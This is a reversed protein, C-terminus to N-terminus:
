NKKACIRRLQKSLMSKLIKVRELFRQALLFYGDVDYKQTQITQIRAEIHQLMSPLTNLIPAYIEYDILSHNNEVANMLRLCTRLRQALVKFDCTEYEKNTLWKYLKLFGSDFKQM